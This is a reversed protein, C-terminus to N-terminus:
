ATRHQPAAGQSRRRRGSMLYVDARPELLPDGSSEIGDVRPIPDFIIHQQETDNNPLVGELVVMGFDIEPRDDPWNVTSDDVVDGASAVQVSIRIKVPGKALRQGIEDFLVNSTQRSATAQDFYEGGGDPRIRYRGFQSAGDRNTFKYANVAFYSEKAFSIPLPQPTQVFKLAAPHAGLFRELPTPKPADAPSAGIARLFEVFDEATRVPFGDISHAIIDTHVHEALYFRIACGRPSAHPDTDPVVPIGAFDSFRVTVPTSGRQIHPARTLSAADPSPTFRGTLLVGKAHVPRFGGPQSGNLDDFARLAEAAIDTKVTSM